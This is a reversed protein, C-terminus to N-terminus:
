EILEKVGAKVEAEGSSLSVSPQSNCWHKLETSLVAAGGSTSKRTDEEGSWDSDVYLELTKPVEPIWPFNQICRPVGKLYRCIRKEKVEDQVTPAHSKRLVEKTAFSIYGRRDTIYQASGGVSRYSTHAAKDLPSDKM